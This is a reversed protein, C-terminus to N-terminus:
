ITQVSRQAKGGRRRRQGAGPGACVRRAQLLDFPEETASSGEVEVEVRGGGRRKLPTQGKQTGTLTMPLAIWWDRSGVHSLPISAMRSRCPPHSAPQIQRPHAQLHHM